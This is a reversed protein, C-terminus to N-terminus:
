AVRRRWRWRSRRRERRRQPGRPKGRKAALGGAALAPRCSAAARTHLPQADLRDRERLHALRQDVLLALERAVDRGRVVLLRVFVEDGTRVGGLAVAGSRRGGGRREGMQVLNGSLQALLCTRRRPVEGRPGRDEGGIGDRCLLVAPLVEGGCAGGGGGGGGRCPVLKRRRRRLGCLGCM